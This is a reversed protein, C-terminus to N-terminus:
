RPVHEQSCFVEKDPGRTARRHRIRRQMPYMTLIDMVSGIVGMPGKGINGPSESNCGRAELVRSKTKESHISARHL